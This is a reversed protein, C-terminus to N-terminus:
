CPAASGAALYRIAHSCVEGPLCVPRGTWSGDSTSQLWCMGSGDYCGGQQTCLAKRQDVPAQAQTSERRSVVYGAGVLVIALLALTGLNPNAEPM